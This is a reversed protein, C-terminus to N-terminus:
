HPRLRGGAEIVREGVVPVTMSTLVILEAQQGPGHLRGAWRSCM